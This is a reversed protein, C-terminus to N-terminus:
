LQSFSFPNHYSYIPLQMTFYFNGEDQDTIISGGIEGVRDYITKFIKKPDSIEHNSHCEVLIYNEDRVIHVRVHDSEENNTKSLFEKLSQIIKMQYSEPIEIISQDLIQFDLKGRNFASLKQHEKKLYQVLLIDNIEIKDDSNEGNKENLIRSYINATELEKAILVATSKAISEEQETFIRYTRQGLLLVGYISLGSAVPVAITSKIHEVMLIPYEIPDGLVDNPYDNIQITRNLQIAEGAVGKGLRIVIRKYRDNSAGISLRWRIEDTMVDYIALGIFDAETSEKVEEMIKTLTEGLPAHNPIIKEQINKDKAENIHVVSKKLRPKNKSLIIGILIGLSVSIIMIIAIYFLLAISWM